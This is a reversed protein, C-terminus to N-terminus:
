STKNENGWFFRGMSSVILQFIRRFLKEAVIELSENGTKKIGKACIPFMAKGYRRPWEQEYELKFSSICNRFSSRTLAIELNVILFRQRFWSVDSTSHGRYFSTYISPISQDQNLIATAHTHPHLRSAHNMDRLLKRKIAKASLDM